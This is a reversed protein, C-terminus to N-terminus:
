DRGQGSSIQISQRPGNSRRRVGELCYLEGVEQWQRSSEESSVEQEIKGGGGRRKRRGGWGGGVYFTGM